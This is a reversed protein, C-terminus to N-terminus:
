SKRDGNIFVYGKRRYCSLTPVAPQNWPPPQELAVQKRKILRASEFSWCRNVGLRTNGNYFNQSCGICHILKEQETM